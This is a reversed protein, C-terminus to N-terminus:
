RKFTATATHGSFSEGNALEIYVKFTHVSDTFPRQILKIDIEPNNIPYYRINKFSLTDSNQNNYDFISFYKNLSMGAQHTSDFDADSTIIINSIEEKAGEYGPPKCRSAHATNFLLSSLGSQYHALYEVDFNITIFYQESTDATLNGTITQQSDTYHKIEMNEYRFYRPEDKCCNEFLIVVTVISVLYVIKKLM